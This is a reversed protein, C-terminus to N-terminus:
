EFSITLYLLKEAPGINQKAFEGIGVKEDSNGDIFVDIYPSETDKIIDLITKEVWNEPDLKDSDLFFMKLEYDHYQYAVGLIM